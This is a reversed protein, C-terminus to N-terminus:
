LCFQEDSKRIPQPPQRAVQITLAMPLIRPAKSQEVQVLDRLRKQGAVTLTIEEQFANRLSSVAVAFHKEDGRRPWQEWKPCRGAVAAWYKNMHPEGGTSGIYIQLMPPAM